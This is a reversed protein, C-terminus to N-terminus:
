YNEYKLQYRFINNDARSAVYPGCGCSACDTRCSWTYAKVTDHRILNRKTLKKM